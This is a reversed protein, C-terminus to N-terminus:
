LMKRKAQCVDDLQITARKKNKAITVAESAMDTAIEELLGAFEEVADKSVRMNTKRLISEAAAMPIDM